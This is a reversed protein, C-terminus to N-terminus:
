VVPYAAAQGLVNDYVPLVFYNERYVGSIYLYVSLSFSVFCPSAVFDQSPVPAFFVAPNFYNPTMVVERELDSWQSFFIVYNFM